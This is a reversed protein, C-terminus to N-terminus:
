IAMVLQNVFLVTMTSPQTSDWTFTISLSSTPQSVGNLFFMSPFTVAFPPPLPARSDETVTYAGPALQCVTVQGATSDTTYANSVGSADTVTMGWGLLDAYPPNIGDNFQKQITLCFTPAVGLQAKFNDTKSQSSLFGHFCGGSCPNDVNAPNGIYSIVPTAWVKYEDGNNPTPLFDTPCTSNALNITIAGLAAHDQDIGTAHLPGSTGTFATIVGGGVHFSRNSVPDTSLLHAGSQDTVQFYYDGDPLGAATAPAKPGPGGDLYVECTSSFINANVVSGDVTTAFIAGKVGALAPTSLLITTVV